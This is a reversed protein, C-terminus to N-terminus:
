ANLPLNKVALTQASGLDTAHGQAVVVGSRIVRWTWFNTSQKCEYGRKSREVLLDYDGSKSFLKEPQWEFTM